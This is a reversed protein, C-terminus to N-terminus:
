PLLLSPSNSPRDFPIHRHCTMTLPMGANRLFDLRRAELQWTEMDPEAEPEEIALTRLVDM